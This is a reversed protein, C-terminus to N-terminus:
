CIKLLCLFCRIVAKIGGIHFGACNQTGLAAAASPATSPPTAPTPASHLPAAALILHGLAQTPHLAPHLGALCVFM